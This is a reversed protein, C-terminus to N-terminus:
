EIVQISYAVDPTAVWAMCEACTQPSSPVLRFKINDSSSKKGWTCPNAVKFVNDYVAHNPDSDNIWGMQGIKEGSTCQVTINGCMSNIIKGTYVANGLHSAPMRCSINTIVLVTFLFAFPKM